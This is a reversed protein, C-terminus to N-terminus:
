MIFSFYLVWVDKKVTGGQVIASLPRITAAGNIKQIFLYFSLLLLGPFNHMEM